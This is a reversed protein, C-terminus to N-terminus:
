KQTFGRQLAKQLNSRPIQGHTGDPSIVEVMDSSQRSGAPTMQGEVTAALLQRLLPITAELQSPTINDPLARQAEQSDEQSPKNGRALATAYEYRFSNLAVLYRASNATNQQALKILPTNLLRTDSRPFSGSEKELIDLQKNASQATRAVIQSSGGQTLRAGAEAGSRNSAMRIDAATADFNPNKIFEQALAKLKPGRSTMQSPALKQEELAKGLAQQEEPTLNSQNPGGPPRNEYWKAQANRLNTQSQIDALNASEMQHALLQKQQREVHWNQFQQFMDMSQSQPNVGGPPVQGVTVPTQAGPPGMPVVNQGSSAIQSAAQQGKQLVTPSVGYQAQFMADQRGRNNKDVIAQAVDDFSNSLSQGWTPYVPAPPQM